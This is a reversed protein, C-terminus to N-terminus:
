KGTSRSFLIDISPYLFIHTELDSIIPYSIFIVEEQVSEDDDIQEDDLMEDLKSLEIQEKIADQGLSPFLSNVSVLEDNGYGTFIPGDSYSNM